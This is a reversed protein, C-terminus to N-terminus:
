GTSYIHMHYASTTSSAKDSSTRAESHLRAAPV